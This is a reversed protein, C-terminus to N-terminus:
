NHINQYKDQKIANFKNVRHFADKMLKSFNKAMTMEVTTEGKNEKRSRATQCPMNIYRM